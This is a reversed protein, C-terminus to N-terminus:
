LIIIVSLMNLLLNIQFEVVEWYANSVFINHHHDTQMQMNNSASSLSRVAPWLPTLESAERSLPLLTEGQTCCMAITLQQWVQLGCSSTLYWKIYYLVQCFMIYEDGQIWKIWFCPFGLVFVMNTTYIEDFHISYKSKRFCRPECNNGLSPQCVAADCHIYVQDFAFM